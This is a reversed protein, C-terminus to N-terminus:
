FTYNSYNVHQKDPICWFITSNLFHLFLICDSRGVHNLKEFVSKLLCVETNM